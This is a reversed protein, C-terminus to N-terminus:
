ELDTLSRMILYNRAWTYGELFLRVPAMVVYAIGTFVCFSFVAAALLYVVLREAAKKIM